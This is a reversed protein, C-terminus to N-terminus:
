KLRVHVNNDDKAVVVGIITDPPEAARVHGENGLTVLEGIDARSKSVFQAITSSGTDLELTNKDTTAVELKLQPKAEEAFLAKIGFPLALLSKLFSLRNM